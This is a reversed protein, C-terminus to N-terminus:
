WSIIIKHGFHQENKAVSMPMHESKQPKNHIQYLISVCYSSLLHTSIKENENPLPFLFTAVEQHRWSYPIVKFLRCSIAKKRMPWIYTLHNGIPLYSIIWLSIMSWTPHLEWLLTNSCIKSTSFLTLKWNKVNQTNEIKKGEQNCTM